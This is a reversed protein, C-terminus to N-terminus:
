KDRGNRFTIRGLFNKPEPESKQTWKFVQLLALFVQKDNELEEEPLEHVHLTNPEAKSLRTIIRRRCILGCHEEAAICYAATQLRWEAMGLPTRSTKFDVIAPYRDGNIVAIADTTGGYGHRKSILLKEIGLFLSVHEDVWRSYPAITAAEDPTLLHRQNRGVQEVLAHIGTGWDTAEKSVRRAEDEGVRAKWAAIGPNPLTQSIITTVSPYREGDIKYSRGTM